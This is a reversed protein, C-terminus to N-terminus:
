GAPALMHSEVLRILEEPEVPKAIYGDFPAGSRRLEALKSGFASFALIPVKGGNPLRRLVEVLQGGDADPLMLDLLILDCRNNSLWEIANRGTEVLAVKHGRSELATQVIEGAIPNDEVAFILYSM